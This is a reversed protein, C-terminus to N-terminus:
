VDHQEESLVEQYIKEMKEGLQEWGFEEEVRHKANTGLQIRLSPNNALEVIALAMKKVVQEPTRAKIKIGSEDTVIIGLGGADLVICPVGFSMAELVAASYGERLSAFVFADAKPYMELVESHPRGGYFTVEGELNLEKTTKELRSRDPGDGIISLSLKLDPIKRKVIALARLLLLTGKRPILRGVYLLNLCGPSSPSGKFNPLYIGTSPFLRCKRRYRKPIALLTERNKLLIADAKRMTIRLLPDYRATKVALIRILESWAGMKLVKLFTRPMMQAGGIPGWVFPIGLFPLLSPFRMVGYTIHHAIDFGFEQHLRKAIQYAKLQWWYFYLAQFLAGPLRVLRFYPDNNLFYFRVNHVM